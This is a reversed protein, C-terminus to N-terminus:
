KDLDAWKSEKEEPHMIANKFSELPTYLKYKAFKEKLKQIEDLYESKQDLRKNDELVSSFHKM